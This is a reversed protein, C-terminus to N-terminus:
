GGAALERELETTGARIEIPLGLLRLVALLSGVPPDAVELNDADANLEIRNARVQDDDELRIEDTAAFTPDDPAQAPNRPPRRLRAAVGGGAALAAQVRAVFADASLDDGRQGDRQDRFRTNATFGVVLGRLALTVTEAEGDIAVIRSEIAEEDFVELPQELEVERAVLSDGILEVELRQVEAGLAARFEAFTLAADRSAASDVEAGCAALAVAAGVSLLTHCIVRM